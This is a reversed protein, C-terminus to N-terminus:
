YDAHYGPSGVEEVGGAAEVANLLPGYKRDLEAVQERIFREASTVRDSWASVGDIQSRSADAATLNGVMADQFQSIRRLAESVQAAAHNWDGHTITDRATVHVGSASRRAVAGGSTTRPM